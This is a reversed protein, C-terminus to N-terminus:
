VSFGLHWLIMRLDYFLTAVQYSLFFAAAYFSSPHAEQWKLAPGAIFRRIPGLNLLLIVSAGLLGGALIDTPYHLGTYVRCFVIIAAFYCMLVGGAVRTVLFVGVAISFFLAAHDSPFSNWTDWNSAPPLSIPPVFQLEPNLMPRARFPTSHALVRAAFLSVHCGLFTILAIERSRRRQDAGGYFWAWWVMSIIVGGKFLDCDNIFVVVRDFAPWQQSWRNLFTIIHYDFLNM